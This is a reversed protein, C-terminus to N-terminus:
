YSSTPTFTYSFGSVASTLTLGSDISYSYDVWNSSGNAQVQLLSPSLIQYVFSVAPPTAEVGNSVKSVSGKYSSGSAVTSFSYVEFNSGTLGTMTPDDTQVLQWNQGTLSLTQPSNNASNHGCSALLFATVLGIKKFM